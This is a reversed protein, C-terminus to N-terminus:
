RQLLRRQKARRCRVESYESAWKVESPCGTTAVDNTIFTDSSRVENQSSNIKVRM